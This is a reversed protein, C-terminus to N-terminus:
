KLSSLVKFEKLSFTVDVTGDTVFDEFDNAEIQLETQLM